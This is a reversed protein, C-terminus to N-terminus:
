KIFKSIPKHYMETEYESTSYMDINIFRRQKVEEPKESINVYKYNLPFVRDETDSIINLFENKM